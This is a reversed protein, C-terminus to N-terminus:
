PRKRVDPGAALEAWLLRDIEEENAGLLGAVRALLARESASEENRYLIRVLSDLEVGSREAMDALSLRQRALEEQLWLGFPSLCSGRTLEWAAYRELIQPVAPQAARGPTLLLETQCRRYPAAAFRWYAIAVPALFLCVYALAPHLSLFRGCETVISHAM